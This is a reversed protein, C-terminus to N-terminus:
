ARARERRSSAHNRAAEGAVRAAFLAIALAALGMLVGAAADLPHHMGRYMRSLAVVLPLVIGLVWTVIMLRRDRVRASILLALGVYVVVAAAVHGSPFSQNVPLHEPDLRPVAPRQRHVILSTVRYTAVEVAIAGVVFAFVRWRRLIAAGLATLIVVAPIFPIDGIMSGVYSADNLWSARNSALWENVAEDSHGIAHIPLLVDVLLFGLGIMLAALAVYGILTTLVFVLLPSHGAFRSGVREAASGPPAVLPAPADAEVRKPITRPVSAHGARAHSASRLLNM